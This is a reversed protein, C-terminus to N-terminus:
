KQKKGDVYLLSVKGRKVFYGRKAFKFMPVDSLSDSYYSSLPTDPFRRQFVAVKQEGYCHPQLLKCRTTLQTAICKVGLRDCAPKVIFEPSASVVIDDDRRQALYWDAIRNINKDWFRETVRDAHPVLAIYWELMHLYSNKGLIHLARLIVALLLVPIMIVLYPFHVMCYICFRRTSNGRFITDDFDYGNM